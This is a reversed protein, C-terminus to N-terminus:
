QRGLLAGFTAYEIRDDQRKSYKRLHAMLLEFERDPVQIHHRRMAARFEDAGLSGVSVPTSWTAACMAFPDPASSSCPKCSVSCLGQGPGLLAHLPACAGVRSTDMERFVNALRPNRDLFATRLKHLTRQVAVEDEHRAEAQAYASLLASPPAHGPAPSPRPTAREGVAFASSGFTFDKPIVAECFSDYSIFGEGARDFRYMLAAVEQARDLPVHCCIPPPMARSPMASASRM